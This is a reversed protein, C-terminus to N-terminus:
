GQQGCDLTLCFNFLLRHHLITWSCGAKRSSSNPLHFGHKNFIRHLEAWRTGRQIPSLRHVAQNCTLYSHLLPLSIRDSPESTDLDIITDAAPPIALSVPFFHRSLTPLGQSHNVDRSKGHCTSLIPDYDPTHSVSICRTIPTPLYMSCLLRDSHLM